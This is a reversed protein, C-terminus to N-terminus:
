KNTKRWESPKTTDGAGWLGLKTSKAYNQALNYKQRDIADQENSFEEYWWAAGNVVQNYNCDRGDVMLKGLLRGYSDKKKYIIKIDKGQLCRKLQVTSERGYRQKSEPADIGVLRVRMNEGQLRFSLTDGDSIKVDLPSKISIVNNAQVQMSWGFMLLFLLYRM